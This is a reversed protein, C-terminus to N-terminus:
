SWTLMSKLVKHRSEAYFISLDYEPLGSNHPMIAEYRHQEPVKHRLIEVLVQSNKTSFTM